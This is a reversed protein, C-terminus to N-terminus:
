LHRITNCKDTCYNANRAIDRCRAINECELKRPRLPMKHKHKVAQEMMRKNSEIRKANTFSIHKNYFYKWM